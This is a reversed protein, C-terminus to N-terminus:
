PQGGISPTMVGLTRRTCARTAWSRTVMCAMASRSLAMSLARLVMGVKRQKIGQWTSPGNKAGRRRTAEAFLPFAKGAGVFELFIRANRRDRFAAALFGPDV